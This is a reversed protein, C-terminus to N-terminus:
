SRWYGEVYTGNSRVHPRVYEVRPRGTSDSTCGYCSLEFSRTFQMHEPALARKIKKYFSQDFMSENSDSWKYNIANDSPMANAASFGMVSVLVALLTRNILKM